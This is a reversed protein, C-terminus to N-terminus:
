APTAASVRGFNMQRRVREAVRDTEDQGAALTIVNCLGFRQNFVQKGIIHNGVFTVICVLKDQEHSFSVGFRDDRRLDIALHLTDNVGLKVFLPMQNFAADAFQFM